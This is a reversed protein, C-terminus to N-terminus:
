PGRRKAPNTCNVLMFTHNIGVAGIPRTCRVGTRGIPAGPLPHEPPDALGTGHRRRVQARLETEGVGGDAAVEVPKVGVSHDLGPLDPGGSSPAATAGSPRPHDTRCTVGSEGRVVVVQRALRQAEERRGDTRLRHGREGLLPDRLDLLPIRDLEGSHTVIRPVPHGREDHRQGAVSIGGACPRDDATRTGTAELQALPVARDLVDGGLERLETVRLGVGERPEEPDMDLPERGQGVAVMDAGGEHRSRGPGPLDVGTLARFGDRV